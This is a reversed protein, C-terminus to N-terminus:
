EIKSHNDVETSDFDPLQNGYIAQFTKRRERDIKRSRDIESLRQNHREFLLLLFLVTASIGIWVFTDM